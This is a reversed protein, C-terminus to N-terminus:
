PRATQDIFRVWHRGLVRPIATPHRGPRRCGGVRISMFTTFPSAGLERVPRVHQRGAEFTASADVLADALSADLEPDCM